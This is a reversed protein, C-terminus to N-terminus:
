RQMHGEVGRKVFDSWGCGYDGKSVYILLHVVILDIPSIDM